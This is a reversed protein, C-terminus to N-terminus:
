TLIKREADLGDCTKSRRTERMETERERVLCRLIEREREPSMRMAYMPLGRELRGSSLLQTLGCVHRPGLGKKKKKLLISDVLEEM